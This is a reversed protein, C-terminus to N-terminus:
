HCQCDFELNLQIFKMQPNDVNSHETRLSTVLFKVKPPSLGL